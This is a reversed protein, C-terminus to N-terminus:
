YEYANFFYFIFGALGVVSEVLPVKSSTVWSTPELWFTSPPANGLASQHSISSIVTSVTISVHIWLHHDVLKLIFVTESTFVLAWVIFLHIHFYLVVYRYEWMVTTICRSFLEPACHQAFMAHMSSHWLTSSSVSKIPNTNVVNLMVTLSLSGFPVVKEYHKM